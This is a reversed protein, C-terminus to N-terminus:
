KRATTKRTTTTKRAPTTRRQANQRSVNNAKSSSAPADKLVWQEGEKVAVPAKGNKYTKTNIVHWGGSYFRYLVGQKAGFLTMYCLLTSDDLVKPDQLKDQLYIYVPRYQFEQGVEPNELPAMIYYNEGEFTDSLTYYKKGDIECMPTDSTVKWLGRYESCGIDTGGFAFHPVGYLDDFVMNEGANVLVSKSDLTVVNGSVSMGVNDSNIRIIGNQADLEPLDSTGTLACKKYLPSVGYKSVPLYQNDYFVCNIFSPQETSIRNHDSTTMDYFVPAENNYFTCNYFHTGTRNLQVAGIHPYDNNGKHKSFNNSILCNMALIPTNGGIGPSREAVNTTNDSIICRNLTLETDDSICESYIGGKSNGTFFCDTFQNNTCNKLYLGVGENNTFNCNFARVSIQFAGLGSGESRSFTSDYIDLVGKDYNTFPGEASFDSLHCNDIFREEGRPIVLSVNKGSVNRLNGNVINLDGEIVDPSESLDQYKGPQFHINELYAGNLHLQGIITSKEGNGNGNEYGGIIVVNNYPTPNGVNVPLKYTGSALNITLAEVQQSLKLIAQLNGSPADESLGQGSAGEKVYRVVQVAQASLASLLCIVIVMTIKVSFNHSGRALIAKFTKM